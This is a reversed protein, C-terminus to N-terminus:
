EGGRGGSRRASLTVEGMPSSGTATIADGAVTGRFPIEMSEAGFRVTVVFEIRNGTIAGKTITMDGIETGRIAGTFTNGEQTLTLLGSTSGADSALDVSWNGGLAVAEGSGSGGAAGNGRAPRSTDGKELEGEVFTYLIRSDKGFLPGNTVMFTAPRGAEIRAVQAVGLFEAPVATLAGLAATESLGYEIAKRAGARLDAKGGGSTLMFRVGAAALKGANAYIEEIRKKERSETPDLPKQEAEAKDGRSSEPTWYQPKPFDLSVLVPVNRAKLLSAVQWAEAGGVIVPRLGYQDALGLVRRIDEASNAVFFTLVKGDMAEQLVEFDPDYAPPLLGRSDRAYESSVLRMHGVDEFTQRYFALVGFLTSPYGMGGRLTMVPGLVPTHVLAAPTTAGKRYFLFAGRGPMLGDVPYVAGAVIGQKRQEKLDAGTAQLFDVVRQHPMFGQAARPPDWSPLRARDIEVKPFEYKAAGQADIFGPYVVLSDGELLQADDPIAVNAGLAEIFNGRVVLTMGDTRRGDAQVVSVGKLAYAAPPPAEVFQAALRGPWALALPFVALCLWLRLDIRATM